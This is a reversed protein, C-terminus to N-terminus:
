DRARREMQEEKSWERQYRCAVTLGAPILIDGHTPHLIKRLKTLVFAPGQLSEENWERPRFLRVGALSDLCHKAGETSGPVLQKDAVTPKAIEVLDGPVSEVIVLYLDGQRIYDGATAAETFALPQGPKVSEHEGAAIQRAHGVIQEVVQQM